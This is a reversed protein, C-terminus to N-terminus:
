RQNLRHGQLEGWRPALEFAKFLPNPARIGDHGLGRGVEVAALAARGGEVLLVLGRPKAEARRIHIYFHGHDM